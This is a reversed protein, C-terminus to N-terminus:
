RRRQSNITDVLLRKCVAESGCIEKSHFPNGGLVFYYGWGNHDHRFIFAVGIQLSSPVKHLNLYRRDQPEGLLWNSKERPIWECKKFRIM